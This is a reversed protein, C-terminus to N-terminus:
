GRARHSLELMTLDQPKVDKAPFMTGSYGFDNKRKDLIVSYAEIRLYDPAGYRWHSIKGPGQPTMVADGVGFRDEHHGLQMNIYIGM